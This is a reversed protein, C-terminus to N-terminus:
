PLSNVESTDLRYGITADDSEVPSVQAQVTVSGRDGAVRLVLDLRAKQNVQLTVGQAEVSQFGPKEATVTYAGPLLEDIRYAGQQGTVATRTFGTANNRATVTAAPALAGSEDHVEGLLTASAVQAEVSPIAAVLFSAILFLKKM